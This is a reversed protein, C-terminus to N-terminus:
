YICAAKRLFYPLLLHSLAPLSHVQVEMRVWCSARCTALRRRASHVLCLDRFVSAFEQLHIQLVKQHEAVAQCTSCWAFSCRWDMILGAFLNSPQEAPTQRHLTPVNYFAQRLSSMQEFFVNEKPCQGFTPPPDVWARIKQGKKGGHKGKYKSMLIM